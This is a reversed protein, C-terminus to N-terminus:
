PRVDHCPAPRPSLDAAGGAWPVPTRAPLDAAAPPQRTVACILGSLRALQGAGDGPVRGVDLRSRKERPWLNRDVQIVPEM